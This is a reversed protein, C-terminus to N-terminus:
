ELAGRRIPLDCAVGVGFTMPIFVTPDVNWHQRTFDARLKLASSIKFEAGGGFSYITSNDGYYTEIPHTFTIDGYGVLFTAYPHIGHIATEIKLGGTFSRESVTNGGGSTFRAELSPQVIARIFRTYDVGATYGVNNTPGWGPRILTTQFFPALAGGRQATVIAQASAVTTGALLAGLLVATRSTWHGLLKRM